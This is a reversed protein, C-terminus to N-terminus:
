LLADVYGAWIGSVRQNVPSKAGAVGSDGCERNSYNPHGDFMIYGQRCLM